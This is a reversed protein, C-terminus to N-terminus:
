ASENSLRRNVANVALYLLALWDAEAFAHRYAFDLLAQRCAQPSLPEAALAREIVADVDVRPKPEPM